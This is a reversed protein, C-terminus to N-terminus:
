NKDAGKRAGRKQGGIGGRRGEARKKEWKEYQEANLIEKMKKNTEEM